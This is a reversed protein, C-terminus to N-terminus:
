LFAAARRFPAVRTHDALALNAHALGRLAHAADSASDDSLLSWVFAGRYGAAHAAAVIDEVAFRSGRSPFEGLLAPADLVARAVPTVLPLRRDFRDYWHPQYFDLGLGQVLALTRLRASGVTVAHRTDERVCRAALGLFARMEGADVAALPNWAGLGLTVWEPENMLDWSRIIPEGGFRRWLPALVRSILADRRAPDSIALRRERAAARTSVTALCWHFDFVVFVLGLGAADALVLAAEIDPAVRDDLGLPVGHADFRVGARGDCLLFWRIVRAGADAAAALTARVRSLDPHSALGGHETWPGRGFDGGYTAWPLNAGLLFPRTSM